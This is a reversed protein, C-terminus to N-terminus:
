EGSSHHLDSAVRVEDGSLIGVVPLTRVAVSCSSLQLCNQPQSLVWFCCIESASLEFGREGVMMLMILNVIYLAREQKWNKGLDGLFDGM